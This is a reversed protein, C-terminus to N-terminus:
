IDYSLVRIENDLLGVRIVQSIKVDMNSMYTSINGSLSGRGCLYLNRILQYIDNLKYLCMIRLTNKHHDYWLVNVVIGEALLDYILGYAVSIIEECMKRGNCLDVWIYMKSDSIRLREKVLLEDKKVSLKWHIDKIRDGPIYERIDFSDSSEIGKINENDNETINELALAKIEDSIDDKYPLVVVDMSENFLFITKAIGFSDSIEIKKVVFVVDGIASTKFIYKNTNENKAIIPFIFKSISSDGLFENNIEIGCSCKLSSFISKNNAKLGFIIEEGKNIYEDSIFFSFDTNRSIIILYLISFPVILLLIILFLIALYSRFYMFILVGFVVYVILCSLIRLFSLKFIFKNSTLKSM